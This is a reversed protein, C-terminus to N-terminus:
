PNRGFSLFVISYDSEQKNKFFCIHYFEFGLTTTALGWLSPVSKLRWSRVDLTSGQATLTFINRSTKSGYCLYEYLDSLALLFM